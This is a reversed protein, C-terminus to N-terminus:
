PALSGAYAALAIMESLSMTAANAQMPGALVGDRVRSKFEYLQRFIMTPSRGALPPVTGLGRLGEGHCTACAPIRGGAGGAALAAGRVLSGPPVYATFTVRADRDVFAEEDDPMEIIREGLAETQGDHKPTYYWNPVTSTPVSDAEIVKIRQPLRLGAYYAAAQKIEGESLTKLGAIMRFVHARDKVATSRAGSRYDAIQRLIYDEPLGALSANEPGGVGEPRHCVGCPRFDPKRGVAVVAPMPPHGGPFWDLAFFLDRIETLTFGADSGPVHRITGDDKPPVYDHSAVPYAWDPAADEARVPRLLASVVALAALASRARMRNSRM